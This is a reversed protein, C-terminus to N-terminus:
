WWEYHFHFCAIQPQKNGSLTWIEVRVIRREISYIHMVGIINFINLYVSFLLEHIVEVASIM